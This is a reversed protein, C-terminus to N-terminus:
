KSILSIKIEPIPDFVLHWCVCFDVVNFDQIKKKMHMKELAILNSDTVSIFVYLKRNDKCPKMDRRSHGVSM